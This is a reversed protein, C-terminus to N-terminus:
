REVMRGTEGVRIGCNIAMSKRNFAEVVASAMDIQCYQFLLDLYIYTDALERALKERLEGASETNGKIGDRVRNLKKAVNAAEGLEGLVATFWDSMDWSELAHNFGSKSECRTRNAASFARADFPIPVLFCMTGRSQMVNETHSVRAISDTRGCGPCPDKSVLKMSAYDVGGHSRFERGCICTCTSSVEGGFKSWDISM